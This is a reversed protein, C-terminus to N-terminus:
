SDACGFLADRFLYAHPFNFQEIRQPASTIARAILIKFTEERAARSCRNKRRRLGENWCKGNERVLLYILSPATHSIPAEYMNLNCKLGANIEWFILIMQSPETVM